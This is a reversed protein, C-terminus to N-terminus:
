MDYQSKMWDMYAGSRIREVWGPHDLYWQITKKLGTEFSEKPAFALENRIKTFDIAYRLDHGPRDKVFTILRRRPGKPSVGKIEDVMDCIKTVVELNTRECQGGVNYVGGKKGNQMITWIARCHDTVFLWDRINEGKGYVPLPKEEVANLIMLPILKEPFQYPGYNNSCNSITTPLGYTHGYARM